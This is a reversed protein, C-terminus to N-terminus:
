NEEFRIINKNNFNYIIGPVGSCNEIHRKQKDTRAFLSLRLDAHFKKMTEVHIEIHSQFIQRFIAYFKKMLM